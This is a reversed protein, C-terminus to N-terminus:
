GYNRNSRNSGSQANDDDDRWKWRWEPFWVTRTCTQPWRKFIPRQEVKAKGYRWELVVWKGEKDSMEVCIDRCLNYWDVVTNKSRGTWQITNVIPVLNAWLWVLVINSLSFKCKKWWTQSAAYQVVFPRTCTFYKGQLYELERTPPM